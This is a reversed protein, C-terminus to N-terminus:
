VVSKRDSRKDPQLLFRQTPYGFETLLEAERFGLRQYTKRQGTDARDGERFTTISIPRGALPNRIIYELLTEEVKRKRYQPHISLFDVNGTRDSFALAGIIQEEDRVILAQQRYIYGKLKELHDTEEFCPFGDVTMAALEMWDPIDYLSACTVPPLPTKLSTVPRCLHFASQLPYFRRRRRYAAPSLKYMAKFIDTFAQQSGYGATLAIQIVPLESFVLLKAAETLQRRRIYDHLTMGVVTTFIRHLHFRSYHVADAVQKLNLHQDLHSEIYAIAEAAPETTFDNM